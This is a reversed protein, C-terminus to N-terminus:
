CCCVAVPFPLLGCCDDHSRHDLRTQLSVFVQRQVVTDSSTAKMRDLCTVDDLV